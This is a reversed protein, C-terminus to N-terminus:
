VAKDKLVKFTGNKIRERIENHFKKVEKLDKSDWYINWSSRKICSITREKQNYLPWGTRGIHTNANDAKLATYGSGTGDNFYCLNNSDLLKWSLNVKFGSALDNCNQLFHGNRDYVKFM